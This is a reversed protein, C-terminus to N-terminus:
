LTVVRSITAGGRLLGGKSDLRLNEVRLFQRSAEIGYLFRVMQELDGEVELYVKYEEFTSEIRSEQPTTKTMVIKCDGALREIEALMAANEESTSGKKAIYGGYRRYESEVTDKAASLRINQKMKKESSVSAAELAAFRSRVPGMVVVAGTAIIATFVAMLLATKKDFALASFNWKM